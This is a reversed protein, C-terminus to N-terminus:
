GQLTCSLGMEWPGNPMESMLNYSVQRVVWEGNAAKLQSNIKVRTGPAANTPGHITPDFITRVKVIMREFQPYGIMGTDPGVEPIGGSDRSKNKPWIALLKKSLDLFGFVDAAKLASMVQTMAAGPFYPNSLVANVGNNELSLGTPQLIQQLATAVPVDGKFTTPKVPKLQIEAGSNAKVVFSVNPQDNFDPYADFILGNFVVTMGSEDDGAEIAILNNRQLWLLGCQSMQNIHSLTLGFIRIVAYPPSPLIVREVFIHVRLGTLKIQEGSALQVTIDIKRRVYPATV